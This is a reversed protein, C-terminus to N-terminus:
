KGQKDEEFVGTGQINIDLRAAQESGPAPPQGFKRYALKNLRLYDEEDIQDDSILGAIRVAAEALAPASLIYQEHTPKEKKSPPPAPDDTQGVLWGVSAEYLDALRALTETDPDRIGREYNSITQYKTGIIRAVYDQTFGKSIRAKRLRGGLVSM